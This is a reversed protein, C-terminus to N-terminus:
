EPTSSIGSVTSFRHKRGVIPCRMRQEAKLDTRRVPSRGFSLGLVLLDAVLRQLRDVEQHVQQYTESEAPLVGDM